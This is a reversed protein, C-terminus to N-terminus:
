CMLRINDIPLIFFDAFSVSLNPTCGSVDFFPFMLLFAGL